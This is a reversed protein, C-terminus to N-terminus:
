WAFNPLPMGFDVAIHKRMRTTTAAAATNQYTLSHFEVLTTPLIAYKKTSFAVKPNKKMYM